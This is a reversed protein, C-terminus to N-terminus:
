LKNRTYVHVQQLHICMTCTVHVQQLHCAFICRSCNGHAHECPAVASLAMRTYVHHLQQSLWAREIWVVQSPNGSSAVCFCKFLSKTKAWILFYLINLICYLLTIDWSCSPCLQSDTLNKNEGVSLIYNVINKFKTWLWLTVALYLKLLGALNWPIQLPSPLRPSPPQPCFCWSWFKLITFKNMEQVIGAVHGLCASKILIFHFIKFRSHLIVHNNKFLNM